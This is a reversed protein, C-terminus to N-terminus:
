MEGLFLLFHSLFYVFSFDLFSHPIEFLKWFYRHQGCEGSSPAEVARKEAWTSRKEAGGDVVITAVKKEGRNEWIKM